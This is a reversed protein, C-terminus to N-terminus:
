RRSQCLPLFSQIALFWASCTVPSALCTSHSIFEGASVSCPAGRRVAPCQSCAQLPWADGWLGWRMWPTEGLLLDLLPLWAVDAVSSLDLFPTADGKATYLIFLDESEGDDKGRQESSVEGPPSSLPGGISSSHGNPRVGNACLLIVGGRLVCGWVPPTKKGNSM